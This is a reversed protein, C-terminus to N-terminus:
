RFTPERVTPSKLRSCDDASATTANFEFAIFGADNAM